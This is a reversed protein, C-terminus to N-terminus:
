PYCHAGLVETEVEFNCIDIFDSIQVSDYYKWTYTTEQSTCKRQLSSANIHVAYCKGLILLHLPAYSVQCLSGVFGCVDECGGGGGVCGRAIM